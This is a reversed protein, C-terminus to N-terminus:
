IGVIVEGGNPSIVQGTIFYSEPGCLFLVTHSMENVDACRGM